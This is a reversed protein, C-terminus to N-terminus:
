HPRGYSNIPSSNIHKMQVKEGTTPASMVWGNGVFIAVHHVDSYYFVLDGIQLNGASVRTTVSKQAAANHPLGVGAGHLWAQQTLGSCDFTDPGASGWVYTKGAQLCAWKAARAGPSGDYKSPCAAPRYQGTATTTGYAALRLKNLAAIQTNISDRKAALAAQQQSLSTVLQDIPAKQADYQDKLARADSVAATQEVALENLFTLQDVLTNVKGSTLLASLSSGPGQMYMRASIAGVRSEAKDVKAALPAIKAKLGTLKAQQTLLKDHVANWQEILPEIQNWAKDIQQELQGPSPAAQASGVTTLLLGVSTLASLVLVQLTRVARARTAHGGV